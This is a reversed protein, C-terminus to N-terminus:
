DRLVRVAPPGKPVVEPFLTWPEYGDRRCTVEFRVAKGDYQRRWQGPDTWWSPVMSQELSLKYPENKPLPFPGHQRGTEDTDRVGRNFRFPGWIAASVQEATLGAGPNAARDPRDDRIRVIVEDLRDLGPPGTLELEATAMNDGQLKCTIKLDPTLDHHLRTKEISVAAESASAQRRGALAQQRSYWASAIAIIIAAVAVVLSATAM